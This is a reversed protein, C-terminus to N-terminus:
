FKSKILITGSNVVCECEEKEAIEKAAGMVQNLLRPFILAHFPVMVSWYLRGWFPMPNFYATQICEGNVIKFELWAEGPSRMEASLLMYENEILKEVRWFDVIDQEKLANADRRGRMGPGMVCKDICGRMQWLINYARWGSKGGLRTFARYFAWAPIDGLM